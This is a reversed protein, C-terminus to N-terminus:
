PVHPNPPKRAEKTMQMVAEEDVSTLSHEKFIVKQLKVGGKQDTKDTSCSLSCGLIIGWMTLPLKAIVERVKNEKPM